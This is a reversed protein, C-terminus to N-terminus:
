ESLRIRLRGESVEVEEVGEAFAQWFGRDGGFERVLDINKLNGLWANPLPVGWISLGRLIIVPDGDVSRLEMGATVKLTKGGVFPLDPDLPVLVKASALDQSLDIAVREALDTNRALLANVERESLVIERSVGEETYAEPLLPPQEGATRDASEFREIKRELVREEKQSLRVPEFQSPFFLAFVLWLTIAVSLCVTLFVLGGVKWASVHGAPASNRDSEVM